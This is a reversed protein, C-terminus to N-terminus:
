EQLEGGPSATELTGLEETEVVDRNEFSIRRAPLSELQEESISLRTELLKIVEEDFSPTLNRLQGELVKPLVSKKFSRYVGLGTWIFVTLVTLFAIILADKDARVKKPVM